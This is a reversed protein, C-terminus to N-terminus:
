NSSFSTSDYMQGIDAAVWVVLGFFAFGVWLDCGAASGLCLGSGVLDSAM